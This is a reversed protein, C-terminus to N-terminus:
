KGALGVRPSNGRGAKWGSQEEANQAPETELWIAGGCKACARNGALNVGRMKRRTPKWGVQGKALEGPPNKARFRILIVRM